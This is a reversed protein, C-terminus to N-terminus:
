ASMGVSVQTVNTKVDSQLLMKNMNKQKKLGYFFAHSFFHVYILKYYKFQYHFAEPNTKLFLYFNQHIWFFQNVIEKPKRNEHLQDFESLNSIFNRCLRWLFLQRTGFSGQCITRCCFLLYTLIWFQLKYM